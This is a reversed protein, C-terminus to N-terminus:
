GLWDRTPGNDIHCFTPYRGIGQAGQYGEARLDTLIRHLRTVNGSVPILDLARFQLHMSSSAGRIAKNYPPSRYASAILIGSNLRHRAEDAAMAAAKINPWLNRPPDTNLRLRANSAGKTLLEGAAFHRLHWTTALDHFTSSVPDDDISKMWADFAERTKRGDIGDLIGHYFGMSQLARQQLYLEPSKM